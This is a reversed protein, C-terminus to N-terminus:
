LVCTNCPTNASLRTPMNARLGRYKPDNYIDLINQERANGIVHRGEGDACCLAVQGTAMINLEFWRVCGIPPISPLANISVQDVWNHRKVLFAQFLPFRDKIFAVFAADKGSYDAVRSIVVPIRFSRSKVLHHLIDLKKLTNEFSLQMIREYDSAEYTNLSIWFHTVNHLRSFQELIKKTFASGNSFIRLQAHPLRKNINSCITFLRKDLFPENVKFPSIAFPVNPPIPALDNIIKEILEDPMKTGKREMTPYPCFNCAANCQAFTEIIVENPYDMCPSRRLREVRLQENRLEAPLAGYQELFWLWFGANQGGKRIATNLSTAALDAKNLNLLAIGHLTWFSGNDPEQILLQSAHQEAMEFEGSNLLKNILQAVEPKTLVQKAPSSSM